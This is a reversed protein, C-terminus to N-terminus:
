RFVVFIKKKQSIDMKLRSTAIFTCDVLAIEPNQPGL